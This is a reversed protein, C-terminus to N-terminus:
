RREDREEKNLAKAAGVAIAAAACARTVRLEKGAKYAITVRGKLEVPSWDFDKLFRVRM